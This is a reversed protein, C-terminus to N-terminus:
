RKERKYTLPEIKEVFLVMSCTQCFVDLQSSLMISKDIPLNIPIDAIQQQPDINTIYMRPDISDAYTKGFLSQQGFVLPNIFQNINGIPVIYRITNITILDSVFSNLFTGYNVNQCRIRIMCPYVFGGGINGYLIVLDGNRLLNNFNIFFTNNLNYGWIGIPVQGSANGLIFNNNIPNLLISKSFGSYFDTLSFLFFPLSQQFMVPFVNPLALISNAGFPPVTTDVYFKDINLTIETKTLSNGKMFAISGLGEKVNPLLEKNVRPEQLHNFLKKEYAKMWCMKKNRIVVELLGRKPLEQPKIM